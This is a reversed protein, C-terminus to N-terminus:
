YIFGMRCMTKSIQLWNVQGRRRITSTLRTVKNRRSRITNGTSRSCSDKENTEIFIYPTKNQRKLYRGKNEM